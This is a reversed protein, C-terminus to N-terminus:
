RLVFEHQQENIKTEITHNNHALIEECETQPPENALFYVAHYRGTTENKEKHTIINFGSRRLDRVRERLSNSGFMEQCSNFTISNGQKLYDLIKIVDTEPKM